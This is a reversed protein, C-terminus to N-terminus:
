LFYVLYFLTWCFLLVNLRNITPWLISLGKLSYHAFVTVALFRILRAPISVMLFTWYSIGAEAAQFAYLKYPTGTPPGVFVAMVGSEEMQVAVREIMTLNIAPIKQMIQSITEQASDGLFYMVSGGILAGVLSIFAAVIGPYLRHRSVITMWVDPVIFFTTAEGLGWVFAVLKVGM